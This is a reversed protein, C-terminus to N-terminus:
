ELWVHGLAEEASIRRDPQKQLLLQIFDKANASYFSWTPDDFAVECDLLELIEGRSNGYDPIKGSLMAFSIAGLSWLDAKESCSTLFMEPASYGVSTFDSVTRQGPEAFVSLGFDIIKLAPEYFDGTIMINEPKLDRHVVGLSHLYSIGKLLAKIQKKAEAESIRESRIKKFLENGEIYEMVIISYKRSEFAEKFKPFLPDDLSRQISIENRILERESSKLTRKRIFKAVFRKGSYNERCLYINAFRGKSIKEGSTYNDKFRRVTGAQRIKAEFDSRESHDKCTLVVRPDYESNYFICITNQSGKVTCGEIWILDTLNELEKDTYVLLYINRIAIYREINNRNCRVLVKGLLQSKEAEKLDERWTDAKFSSSIFAGFWPQSYFFEKFEEYDLSM